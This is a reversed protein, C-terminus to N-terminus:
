LIFPFTLVEEGKPKVQFWIRMQEFKEPTKTYFNFNLTEAGPVKRTHLHNWMAHTHEDHSPVIVVAHGDMELWQDFDKVMEYNSRAENWAALQLRLRFLTGNDGTIKEPTVKVRYKDGYKGQQQNKAFYKLYTGNGDAIDKEMSKIEAQGEAEVVLHNMESFRRRVGDDPLVETMVL